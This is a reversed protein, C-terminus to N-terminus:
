CPQWTHGPWVPKAGELAAKLATDVVPVKAQFTKSASAATSPSAGGEKDEGIKATHVGRNPLDNLAKQAEAQSAYRGLVLGPAFPGQVMPEFAVKRARLEGKKKNLMEADAYRGMYVLWRLPAPSKESAGSAAAPVAEVQFQEQSLVATLGKKVSASTKEDFPGLLWCETQVPPPPPNIQKEVEEQSLLRLTDPRVQQTLREPEGSTAAPWGLATMHGHSGLYYIGNALLLLGLLWKM